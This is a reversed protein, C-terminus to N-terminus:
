PGINFSDIDVIAISVFRKPRKECSTRTATPSRRFCINNLENSSGAGSHPWVAVSSWILSKTTSHLLREKICSLLLFPLHLRLLGGLLSKGQKTDELM